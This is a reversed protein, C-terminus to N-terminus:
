MPLHETAITRIFVTPPKPRIEKWDRPPFYFSTWGVTTTMISSLAVAGNAEMIYKKTEVGGYIVPARLGAANAIDTFHANFPRGSPAPKAQAKVDRSAVGQQGLMQQASACLSLLVFSRRTITM